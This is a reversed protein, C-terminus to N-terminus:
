FVAGSILPISVFDEDFNRIMRLGSTDKAMILISYLSQSGAFGPMKKNYPIVAGGLM